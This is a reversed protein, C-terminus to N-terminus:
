ISHSFTESIFTNKALKLLAKYKEEAATIKGAWFNMRYCDEILHTVTEDEIHCLRCKKSDAKGIRNLYRNLCAHGTTMGVLTRIDAKSLSTVYDANPKNFPKIYSKSHVLGPTNDWRDLAEKKTAADVRALADETRKECLINIRKYKCAKSAEKDLMFKVAAGASLGSLIVPNLTNVKNLADNCEIVDRDHSKNNMLENLIAQDPIAINIGQGTRLRIAKAEVMRSFEKLALFYAQKTGCHDSLRRRLSLLNGTNVIIIGVKGEKTISSIAWEKIETQKTMDIEYHRIMDTESTLNNGVECIDAVYKGIEIHGGTYYGSYKWQNQNLLRICTKSALEKILLDLPLINLIAELSKSPTSRVAGTIMMTGVRQLSELQKRHTKAAKWWVIAGYSVRPLVVQKFLWYTQRPGLGWKKAIMNRAAWLTRKGKSIAYDIHPKWNLKSDIIVGLYKFEKTRPVEQGYMKIRPNYVKNSNSIVMFNSKGPNVALGTNRCWREVTNLMQNMKEELSPAFKERGSVVIALDDAYGFVKGDKRLEVLLSDIVLTWLLPSLCGGQPCGRGPSFVTEEISERHKLRRSTLMGKIWAIIWEKLGKKRAAEQIVEFSTNDFAGEIDLFAVISVNKNKDLKFKELEAILHHLATECGKGKQYAFQDKSIGEVGLNERIIKDMIKELTKLVFSMLSIPRYSKCSSYNEKGAKPLFTVLTDRWCTPIHGLWISARYIKLLPPIILVGARQLLAPFIGDGGATKFPSFSAIAWKIDEENISNMIENKEVEGMNVQIEHETEPSNMPWCDPFCAKMIVDSTEKETKTFTGDEKLLSSLKPPSKNDLIKQLKAIDSVKELSSTFRKWSERKGKRLTKKYKDRKTKFKALAKAKAQISLSTKKTHNFAARVEKRKELLKEDCWDKDKHKIRKLRCSSEYSAIIAKNLEKSLHELERISTPQDTDFAGQKSELLQTYRKWNTKKIVRHKKIDHKANKISFKIAKHDSFNYEQEVRWGSVLDFTNFSVITLDICSSGVHSTFTPTNSNNLITLDGETILDIISIGRNDTRKDGWFEHHSNSDTAIIIKLNKSKVYNVLEELKKSIPNPITEGEDNRAPMYVSCLIFDSWSGETTQTRLNITVMDREVFDNLQIANKNPNLDNSVWISARPVLEGKTGDSFTVGNSIKRLNKKIRAPEQLLLIDVEKKNTIIELENHAEARKATNLQMIKVGEDDHRAWLKIKVYCGWLKDNVIKIEGKNDRVNETCLLSYSTIGKRDKILTSSLNSQEAWCRTYKDDVIGKLKVIVMLETDNNLCYDILSKLKLFQVEWGKTTEDPSVSVICLDKAEQGNGCKIEVAILNHRCFNPIGSPDTSEEAFIAVKNWFPNEKFCKGDKNHFDKGACAIVVDTQSQLALRSLSRHPGMVTSPDYIAISVM